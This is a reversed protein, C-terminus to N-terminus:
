KLPDQLDSAMLIVLDSDVIDIGATLAADLNFTRSMRYGKIRPNEKAAKTIIQWTNDKSGNDFITIGWEYENQTSMVKYLRDFLEELCSEENLASTIIELKKKNKLINM